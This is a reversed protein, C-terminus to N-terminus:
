AVRDDTKREPGAIGKRGSVDSMVSGDGVMRGERESGSDEDSVVVDGAL